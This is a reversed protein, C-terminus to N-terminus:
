PHCHLDPSGSGGASAWEDPTLDRGALRCAAEVWHAPSVSWRQVLGGPSAVVLSAGDPSFALGAKRADFSPDLPFSGIRSGNGVDALRLTGDTTVEAIMQGNTTPKDFYQM